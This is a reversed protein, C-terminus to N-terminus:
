AGVSKGKSAKTDSDSENAQAYLREMMKKEEYTEIEDWPVGSGECEARAGQILDYMEKSNYTHTGKLNLFARIQQGHFDDTWRTPLYHEVPDSKYEDNDPLYTIAPNGNDRREFEQNGYQMILENKKEHFKTLDGKALLGVLRHFYRNAKLGRKEKHETVTYLKERDAEFLWAILEQPTGTKM